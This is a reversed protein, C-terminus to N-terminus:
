NQAMVDLLVPQPAAALSSTITTIAIWVSLQKLRTM